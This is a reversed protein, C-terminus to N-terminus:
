YIYEWFSNSEDTVKVPYGNRNYEYSTKSITPKEFGPVDMYSISTTEIVNNPNSYLGPYGTENFIRFPNNMTDYKFTTESTLTPKSTGQYNNYYYKESIVNGSKDYAYVNFNNIEGNNLHYNMKVIKDGEYEYTKKSGYSFSGDKKNYNEICTLKGSTDYLFIENQSIECNDASMLETKNAWSQYSSSLLSPDAANEAKVLRNMKDYTFREYFILSQSESIKGSSNYLFRSNTKGQAVIEKIGFSNGERKEFDNYDSCSITLM